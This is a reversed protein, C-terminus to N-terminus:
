GGVLETVIHELFGDGNNSVVGEPVLDKLWYLQEWATELLRLVAGFHERLQLFGVRVNKSSCEWADGDLGRGLLRSTSGTPLLFFPWSVVSPTSQMTWVLLSLLTRNSALCAKSMPASRITLRMFHMSQSWGCSNSIVSWVGAVQGQM